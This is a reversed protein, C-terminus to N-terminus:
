GISITRKRQAENEIMIKNKISKKTALSPATANERNPDSRSKPIRHFRSVFRNPPKGRNYPEIITVNPARSIAMGIPTHAAM